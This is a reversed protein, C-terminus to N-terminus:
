IINSERLEELKAEDLGLLDRYVYENDEGLVPGRRWVQGTYQTLNPLVSQMRITGLEEDEISIINNREAYTEDKVIDAMTYIKSAAVGAEVLAAMVEDAPRAGIWAQLRDSLGPAREMRQEMTAFDDESEGLMKAVRRVGKASGSTVTVWQDDSAKFMDIVGASLGLRNGHREPVVDLQDHVIVQWEILRFLPEYLALDIWEGKFDADVARRYLAVQIAFAGMLGTVSDAHSFGSHFPPEGENGTLQVVGSMAEGVKGFGPENRRSATAGYGSVQLMVLRPSLAHLSEWDLKWRALTEPRFNTIVVDAWRVLDHALAQGAEQRLDLAVSRKNRATVKWWLHVGDKSAGSLRQPDGVGPDEAHIVEAGLDALFSGAMPGAIHQAFEVVKLGALAATDAPGPKKAM